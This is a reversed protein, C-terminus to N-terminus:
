VSRPRLLGLLGLLTLALTSPEPVTAIAIGSNGSELRFWYAVQGLNNIGDQEQTLYHDSSNGAFQFDIIEEGM